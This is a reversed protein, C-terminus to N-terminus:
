NAKKLAPKASPSAIRASPTAIKKPKIVGGQPIAYIFGAKFIDNKDQNGTLIVFTNLKIGSMSPISVAVVKSDSNKLTVLQDSISIIQGWLFTKQQKPPEPLLIIKRATLVGVEDTDGLAAIYDDEALNKQSYKAQGSSTSRTKGKVKSEFVTDQNISILKPNSATSLTISNDSKQKIKGIYAKDKLKRDVVQKLQAAKSAIEKKLDELKAKIDASPTSDAAFVRLPLFLAILIFFLPILLKIKSSLFYDVDIRSELQKIRIM